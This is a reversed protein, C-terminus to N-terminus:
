DQHGTPHFAYGSGWVTRIVCLLSPRARDEEAAPVHVTVTSGDDVTYVGYRSSCRRGTSRPSRGICSTSCRKFGLATLAVPEERVRVHRTRENIRWRVLWWVAM